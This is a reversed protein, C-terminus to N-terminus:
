SGEEAEPTYEAVTIGALQRYVDWRGAAEAEAARALRKFRERDIKEVMRFRAENKM